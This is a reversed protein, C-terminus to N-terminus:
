QKNTQSLQAKKAQRKKQIFPITLALATFVLFMISFPRTFLPALSGQSLMLGRRLNLEMTRGLILTIVLPTKPYKFKDLAYGLLGMVLGVIMESISYNINYIGALAMVLVAPLLVHKPLRLVTPFVRVGVLLMLILMVFSAVLVSNFITNSLAPFERMFLPGPAAGKLMLGGMLAATVMDGPIGMAVMPILAGGITANNGTESAVIGQYNGKGFSEPNKSARKAQDYTVFNAFTGGIGPLIGIFIGILSSRLFNPVSEKLEKRTMYVETIKQKPVIYKEHITEFQNFIEAIVFMGILAPLYPIGGMLITVGFTSRLAGSLSDNGILCLSLGLLASVLGKHLSSGSLTVVATFGFLIAGVMEFPGFQLAVKSLAPAFLVLVIWSMVTGIFSSIIGVGLAKGAKGQQAMPFGDFCTAVSSPTGPMNIMIASVLGGSIGGVYAGILTAIGADASLNYTFPILLVVALTASLGPVAGFVLGLAVGAVMWLISSSTLLQFLNDIM